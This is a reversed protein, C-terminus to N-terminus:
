ILIKDNDVNVGTSMKRVLIRVIIAGGADVMTTANGIM